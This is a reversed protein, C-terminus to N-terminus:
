GTLGAALLIAAIGKNLLNRRLAAFNMSEGKRGVEDCRSSSAQRARRLAEQTEGGATCAFPPLSLPWTRMLIKGADRPGPPFGRTIRPKRKCVRYARGPWSLLGLINSLHKMRKCLM